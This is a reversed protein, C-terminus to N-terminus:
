LEDELYKTIIKVAEEAGWCVCTYNGQDKLHKLWAKQEPTPYPKVMKGHKNKYPPKKLEIYLGFYSKNKCALNIDPLGRKLGTLKAKKAQGITLKVGNLSGHLWKLDPYKWEMTEAWQFVAKQEEYESM